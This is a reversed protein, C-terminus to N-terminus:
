TVCTQILTNTKQVIKKGRNEKKKERVQNMNRNERM